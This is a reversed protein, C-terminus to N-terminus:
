QRSRMALRAQRLARRTDHVADALTGLNEEVDRLAAARDATSWDEGVRAAERCRDAATDALDAEHRLRTAITALAIGTNAIDAVDLGGFGALSGRGIPTPDSDDDNDPM